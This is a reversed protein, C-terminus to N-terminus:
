TLVPMRQSMHVMCVVVFLGVVEPAIFIFDLLRLIFPMLLGVIFDLIFSLDTSEFM